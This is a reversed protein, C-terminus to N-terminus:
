RNKAGIGLDRAVAAAETRSQVDLKGLIASVHHSATRPSIFLRAAIETDSLGESLAELVALQRNTLGAPNKRTSQRAKGPLDKVGKARLKRRLLAAAPEAGLETFLDLASRQAPEDGEALATAMEYPCGIREWAQAAAAWDGRRLLLEYPEPLEGDADVRIGLKQAWWDLEGVFWSHGLRAARDRTELLCEVDDFDTGHLWAQEARTAVLPALRQVEGTGAIIECARDVAANAEPDGRRVHLRALASMAPSAILAAGRYGRIVALADDGAGSWDGTELRLRARWGQMYYLWSDLDREASYDIGAEFYKAADEYRKDSVLICTINTYARAIHEQFDNELSIELSRRLQPMGNSAVHTGLATGLNNLAHALTDTDGNAEALEIARSAWEAAAPIDSSLMCLQARNSCAMAYESTHQLEPGVDLAQEAYRDAEKGSGIFWHLRSLWRYSRAVGQEDGTSQWLALAQRHAAIADDIKGTVYSEYALHELLEARAADALTGANNLAKRYLTVAERHAGLRAAEDAAPPAYKLVANEDGSMDAHHALRAAADPRHRRLADLMYRNWKSRQGAPLADEIALRALEHNFAAFNRDVTLLGNSACEDVLDFADEFASELFKIECKGPVVSVLNLMERADPSLRAAKALIADTVTAPIGASGSSLLEQVFFPNGGTIEFLEKSKRADCGGLRAIADLSLPDLKIRATSDRPLDGLVFHLPHTAGIEDDRYSALLLCRSKSIRRGIYKLFDMTANDAWHIDEIVFVAGALEPREVLALFATFIGHNDAGSQLLNAFEGGVQEAFDFLPGLPRAAFLAECGAWHVPTADPLSSAFAEILRTKGIGAPGGVLVTQGGGSVAAERAHALKELPVRRELLM